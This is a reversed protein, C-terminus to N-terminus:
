PGPPDSPPGQAERPLPPREERMLDSLPVGLADAICILTDLKPSAHGQEIRNYSDLGIGAGLAVREQTLNAHIRAARIQNAIQQRRARVRAPSLPEHHM